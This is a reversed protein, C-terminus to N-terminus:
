NFYRLYTYLAVTEVAKTVVRPVGSRGRAALILFTYFFFYIIFFLNFEMSVLSQVIYM